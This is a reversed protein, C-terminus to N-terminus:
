VQEQQGGIVSSSRALAGGWICIRLWTIMIDSVHRVASAFLFFFCKFDLLEFVSFHELWYSSQSETVDCGSRQGLPEM